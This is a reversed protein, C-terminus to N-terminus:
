ESVRGEVIFTSNAQGSPEDAVTELIALFGAERAMQDILAKNKKDALSGDHSIIVRLRPNFAIAVAMGVRLRESMSANAFEMGNYLVDKEGFSLGEIPYEAAALAAIKEDQVAKVAAHHAERVEHERRWDQQLREYEELQRSIERVKANHQDADALQQQLPAIDPVETFAPWLEIAKELKGYEETLEVVAKEDDILLAQLRTIEARRGEVVKKQNAVKAWAAEAEGKAELFARQQADRSAKLALVRTLEENVAVVDVLDGPKETPAKATEAKRKAADYVGYHIERKDAAAKERRNFDELDIGLLEALINLRKKGEMESFELPDFAIKNSLWANISTQKKGERNGEPDIVQLQTTYGKSSGDRKFTRVVTYGNSLKLEVQATESDVAVPDGEIAGEGCLAFLISDLVSSKGASNAGEILHLGGEPDFKIQVAELRKVHTSRLEVLGIHDTM